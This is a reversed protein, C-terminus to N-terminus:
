KSLLWWVFSSVNKKILTIYPSNDTINEPPEQALLLNLSLVCFGFM